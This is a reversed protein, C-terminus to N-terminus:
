LLVGTALYCGNLAGFSGGTPEGLPAGPDRERAAEVSAQDIQEDLTEAPLPEEITHERCLVGRGTPRCRVQYKARHDVEAHVVEGAHRDNAIGREVELGAGVGSGAPHDADQAAGMADLGEAGRAMRM